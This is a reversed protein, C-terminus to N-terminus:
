KNVLFWSNAGKQENLIFWESIGQSYCYSPLVDKVHNQHIGSRRVYDHGSIIGGVKVKKSWNIIDQTVHLFDHNGDIYVFDLSRDAFKSFASESFDRIVFCQYGKLRNYTSQYMLDMQEQSVHERYGKYTIWPDISYLTVDPIAKCITESYVGKEVGIEAGVKFNLDKFLELLEKNRSGKVWTGPHPKETINFKKTVTELTNM